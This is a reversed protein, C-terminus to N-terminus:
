YGTPLQVRVLIWINRCLDPEVQVRSMTKISSWPWECVFYCIQSRGPRFRFSSRGVYFRSEVVFNLM